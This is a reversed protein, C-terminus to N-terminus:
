SGMDVVSIVRDQFYGTSSGDQRYKCTFTNSGATLGTIIFASSAGLYDNSNYSGLSRTDTVAVTTAGSVAFGMIAPDVPNGTQSRNYLVVLAKTGTTLTVAPGSTALDTFSSSTTTQTTAVTATANAPVSSAAAAWKLGTAETSDATLLTGNAGVTLVAADNTASGAVLDGKVAPAISSATAKTIAM